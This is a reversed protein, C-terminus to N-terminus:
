LSLFTFAYINKFNRSEQRRSQRRGLTPRSVDRQPREPLLSPAAHFRGPQRCRCKGEPPVLHVGDALLGELRGRASRQERAIMM